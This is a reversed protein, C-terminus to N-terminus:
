LRRREPETVPPREDLRQPSYRYGVGRVTEIPEVGAARLKRRLYSVYLKVERQDRHGEGWVLELLQSHTLAQGAHRSFATLMRFETPTLVIKAGLAEVRHRLHDIQVFDDAFMEPAKGARPRRLLAEIRAGLEPESFPKSVFDDAGARLARVKDAERDDALILLPVDSLERVTALVEWGSLEPLELALVIADPHDRYFLRLGTHGDTAALTRIETDALLGELAERVDPDREVILITAPRDMEPM